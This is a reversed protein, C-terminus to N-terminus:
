CLEQLEQKIVFLNEFVCVSFINITNSIPTVKPLNFPQQPLKQQQLPQQQQHQLPSTSTTTTSTAPNTTTTAM